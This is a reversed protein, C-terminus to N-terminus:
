AKITVMQEIPLITRIEGIKVVVDKYDLGRNMGVKMAPSATSSTLRLM